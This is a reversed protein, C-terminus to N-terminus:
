EFLVMAHLHSSFREMRELKCWLNVQVCWHFLKVRKRNDCFRLISCFQDFELSIELFNSFLPEVNPLNCYNCYDNHSSKAFQGFSNHVLTRYGSLMHNLNLRTYESNQSWVMWVDELPRTMRLEKMHSGRHFRHGSKILDEVWKFSNQEM